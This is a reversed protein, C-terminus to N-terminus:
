QMPRVMQIPTTHKRMPSWFEWYKLVATFNSNKSRNKELEVCINIKAGDDLLFEKPISQFLSIAAFIKAM